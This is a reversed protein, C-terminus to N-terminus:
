LENPITNSTKSKNKRFFTEDSVKTKLNTIGKNDEYSYNDLDMNLIKRIHDFIGNIKKLSDDDLNSNMTKSNGKFINYYGHVDLLAIKM